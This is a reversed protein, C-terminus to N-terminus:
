DSTGAAPNGDHEEKVPLQLRVLTGEGCESKIELSGGLLAARRKMGRIGLCRNQSEPPLVFGKGDDSIGIFLDEDQRLVVIAEAAEAHKEVNNLAEQVIRFIQLQKEEKLFDLNVDKSIEARCDIGTRKGFDLCLRRLADPLGSIRFDPPVLNDCIDRLRHILTSQIGAADRCLKDREAADGTRSIKEMGLSLYRLDQAITDHLERSIRAREEEQALLFARSLVVHEAERKLSGALVRYLFYLSAAMFVVFAIFVFFLWYHADGSFRVAERDRELWLVLADNIDMSINLAKERDGSYLATRLALALGTVTEIEPIERPPVPILPPNSEPMFPVLRYIRFLESQQFDQVMACFVDVDDLLAAAASSDTAASPDTLFRREIATWQKIIDQIDSTQGAAAHIGSASLLFVIVLFCKLQHAPKMNYWLIINVKLKNHYVKVM